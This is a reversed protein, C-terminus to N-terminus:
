LSFLAFWLIILNKPLVSHRCDGSGERKEEKVKVIICGTQMRWTGNSDMEECMKALKVRGEGSEMSFM